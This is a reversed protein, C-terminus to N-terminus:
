MYGKGHKESQSDGYLSEMDKLAEQEAERLARERDTEKRENRENLKGKPPWNIFQQATDYKSSKTNGVGEYALLALLENAM